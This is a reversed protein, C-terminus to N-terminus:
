QGPIGYIGLGERAIVQVLTTYPKDIGTRFVAIEYVIDKCRGSCLDVALKLSLKDINRNIECLEDIRDARAEYHWCSVWGDPMSSVVAEVHQRMVDTMATPPIWQSSLREIVETMLPVERQKVIDSYSM